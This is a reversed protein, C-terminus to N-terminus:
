EEVIECDEEDVWDYGGLIEFVIYEKKYRRNTQTRIVEFTEGVKDRYWGSGNIIKIKM